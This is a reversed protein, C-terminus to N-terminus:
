RHVVRAIESNFGPGFDEIWEMAGAIKMRLGAGSEADVWVVKSHMFHNVRHNDCDECNECDECVISHTEIIDKVGVCGMARTKDVHQRSRVSELSMKLEGPV